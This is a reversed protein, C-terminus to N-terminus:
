EIPMATVEAHALELTKPAHRSRVQKKWNRAASHKRPSGARVAASGLLFRTPRKQFKKLLKEVPWHELM